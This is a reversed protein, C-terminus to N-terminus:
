VGGAPPPPMQPAGSSPGASSSTIASAAPQPAGRGRGGRGRGEGRNRSRGTSESGGFRTSTREEETLPPQYGPNDTPLPVLSLRIAIVSVHWTTELRSLGEETPEWTDVLDVSSIETIQHLGPIRRKLVEATTPLPSHPTPLSSHPPPCCRHRQRSVLSM